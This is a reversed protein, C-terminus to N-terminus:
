AQIGAAKLVRRVRKGNVPGFRKRRRVLKTLRRYGYTSHQGALQELQRLLQQDAQPDTHGPGAHYYSSEALGVLRCPAAVSGYEPALM